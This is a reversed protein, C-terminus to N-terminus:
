ALNIKCSLGSGDLGGLGPHFLSYMRHLSRLITSLRRKLVKVMIRMTMSTMITMISRTSFLPALWVNLGYWNTSKSIVMQNTISNTRRITASVGCVNKELYFYICIWGFYVTRTMVYTHVSRIKSLRSNMYLLINKSFNKYFNTNWMKVRRKAGKAEFNTLKKRWLSDKFMRFFESISSM